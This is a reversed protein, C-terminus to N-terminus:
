ENLKGVSSIRYLVFDGSTVVKNKALGDIEEQYKGTLVEVGYNAQSKGAESPLVCFTFKMKRVIRYGERHKEHFAHRFPNSRHWRDIVLASEDKGAQNKVTRTKVPEGPGLEGDLPLALEYEEKLEKPDFGDPLPEPPLKKRPLDYSVTEIRRAISSENRLEEENTFLKEPANSDEPAVVVVHSLLYTENKTNVHLIVRMSITDATQEMEKEPENSSLRSVQDLIVEGVWLGQYNNGESAIGESGSFGPFLMVILVSACYIWVLSKTRM